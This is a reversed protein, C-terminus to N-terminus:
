KKMKNKRKKSIGIEKKIENYKYELIKYKKFEISIM